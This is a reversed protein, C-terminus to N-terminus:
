EVLMHFESYGGVTDHFNLVAKMKKNVLYIFEISCAGNFLPMYALISRNVARNLGVLCEGCSETPFDLVTETRDLTVNTMSMLNCKNIVRM